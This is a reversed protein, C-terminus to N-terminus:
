ADQEEIFNFISKSEPRRKGVSQSEYKPSLEMSLYFDTGDHHKWAALNAIVDDHDKM